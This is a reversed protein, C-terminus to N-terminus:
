FMYYVNNFINNLFVVVLYVLLIVGIILGLIGIFLLMVVEWKKNLIFFYFLLVWFYM